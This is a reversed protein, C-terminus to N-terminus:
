SQFTIETLDYSWATRSANRATSAPSSQVHSLTLALTGGTARSAHVQWGCRTFSVAQHLHQPCSTHTHAPPALGERMDEGRVRERRHLRPPCRRSCTQSPSSARAPYTSRRASAAEALCASRRLATHSLRATEEWRRDSAGEFRLCWLSLTVGLVILEEQQFCSAAAPRAAASRPRSYSPSSRTAPQTQAGSFIIAQTQPDADSRARRACLPLLSLHLSASLFPHRTSPVHQLGRPPRRSPPVGRDQLAPRLVHQARRGHARTPRARAHGGRHYLAPAYQRHTRVASPSPVTYTESM